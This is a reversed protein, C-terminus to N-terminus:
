FLSNDQLQKNKGQTYKLRYWAQGFGVDFIRQTCTLPVKGQGGIRHAIQGFDDCFFLVGTKCM